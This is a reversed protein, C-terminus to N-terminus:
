TNLKLKEVRKNISVGAFVSIYFLIPIFYRASASNIFYPFYFGIFIIVILNIDVSFQKKTKKLNSICIFLVTINVILNFISKSTTEAISIFYVPNFLKSLIVMGTNEKLFAIVTQLSNFNHNKEEYEKLWMSVKTNINEFNSTNGLTNQESLYYYHGFRGSNLINQTLYTDVMIANVGYAFANKPTSYDMIIKFSLLSVIFITLLGVAIKRNKNFFLYVFLFFPILFLVPKFLISLLIIILLILCYRLKREHQLRLTYYIVLGLFMTLYTEPSSRICAWWLYLPNFLSILLGWIIIKQPLINTFIKYALYINLLNFLQTISIRIFPQVGTSFYNLFSLLFPIGPTRFQHSLPAIKNFYNKGILYYGDDDLFFYNPLHLFTKVILILIVIILSHIIFLGAVPHKLFSNKCNDLITL